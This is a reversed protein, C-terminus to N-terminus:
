EIGICNYNVYLAEDHNKGMMWVEMLITTNSPDIIMKRKSGLKEGNYVDLTNKGKITERYIFKNTGKPSKTILKYDDIQVIMQNGNAIAQRETVRKMEKGNEVFNYLTCQIVTEASLLSTILSALLIKKM